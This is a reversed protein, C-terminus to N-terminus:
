CGRDARGISRILHYLELPELARVAERADDRSILDDMRQLADVPELGLADPRMQLLQGHQPAATARDDRTDHSM